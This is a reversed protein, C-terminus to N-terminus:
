QNSFNIFSLRSLALMALNLLEVHLRHLYVAVSFWFLPFSHHPRWLEQCVICCISFHGVPSMYRRLHRNQDFRSSHSWCPGFGVMQREYLLKRHLERNGCGWVLVSAECSAHLHNHNWSSFGLRWPQLGLVIATFALLIHMSFGFSMPAFELLSLESQLQPYGINHNSLNVQYAFYPLPLMVIDFRYM